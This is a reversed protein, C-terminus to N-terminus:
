NEHVLKGVIIIQWDISVSILQFVLTKSKLSELSSSYSFFIMQPHSASFQFPDIHSLYFLIDIECMKIEERNVTSSTVRTHLAPIVEGWAKM